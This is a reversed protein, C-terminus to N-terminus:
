RRRIRVEQTKVRTLWEPENRFYLAALKNFEMAQSLNGRMLWAEALYYYNRGNTPHLAVARELIRVAEQPKNELILLRAQETLQLSAISRPDSEKRTEFKEEAQPVPERSPRPSPAAACRTLAICLTAVLICKSIVSLTGSV